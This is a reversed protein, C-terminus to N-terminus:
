PSASQLPIFTILVSGGNDLADETRDAGFAQVEGGFPLDLSLSDGPMGVFAYRQRGPEQVVLFVLGDYGSLNDGEFRATYAGPSLSLCRARDTVALHYAASVTISPNMYPIFPLFRVSDTLTPTSVTITVSDTSGEDPLWTVSRGSASAEGSESFSGASCSWEAISGDPLTTSLYTVGSGSADISAIIASEHGLQGSAESILWIALGAIPLLFPLAIALVTKLSEFRRM